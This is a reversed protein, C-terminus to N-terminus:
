NFLAALYPKAMPWLAAASASANLLREVTELVTCGVAKHRNDQPLTAQTGVFSLHELIENKSKPTLDQADLVAQTILKLAGAVEPYGGVRVQDMAVDLEQISGTNIAGVVSKSVTINNFTMPGTRINTPKPIEMRTYLGPLGVVSEAEGLLFNVMTAHRQHILAQAQQFKLNCDVCLPLGGVAM